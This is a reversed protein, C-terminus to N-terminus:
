RQEGQGQGGQQQQAALAAYYMQVYNNYGGYAAYPDVMGPQGAQAAPNPAQAQAQPMGTPPYNTHQQGGYRDGYDDRNDNQPRSRSM